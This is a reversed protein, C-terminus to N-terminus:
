SRGWAPILHKALETLYDPRMCRNDKLPEDCVLRLTYTAGYRTFSFDAGDGISEFQNSAHMFRVGSQPRMLSSAGMISLKAHDLTYAVTYASRQAAFRGIGLESSQAAILVPVDSITRERAANVAFSDALARDAPAMTKYATDVARWDIDAHDRAVDSPNAASSILTLSAAAILATTLAAMRSLRVLRSNM